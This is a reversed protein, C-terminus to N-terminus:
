AFIYVYSPVPFQYLIRASSVYPGALAKSAWYQVRQWRFGIVWQNDSNQIPWEM